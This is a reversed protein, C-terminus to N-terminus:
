GNILRRFRALERKVEIRRKSYGRLYDMKKAYRPNKLDKGELEGRLQLIRADCEVLEARTMAVDAALYWKM